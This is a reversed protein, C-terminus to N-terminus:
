REEITVEFDMDVYQGGASKRALTLKVKDGTNLKQLYTTYSQMNRTKKGNLVRIIDGNQLGAVMAPSDNEVSDIYIGKPIDMAEAQTDSISAGHIGLYRIPESNSLLEILPRIQSIALARIINTEGEEQKVIFGIVKGSTDLLVGSGEPSGQMDTALLNYEADAASLRGSVSTVMGYVVADHDGAPSGIAIVPKAQLLSYSNGLEAVSIAKKTSASIRTVPVRVVALGTYGDAKCLSGAATSGDSFTVQVGNAEALGDGYTLIYLHSGSDLFIIGEARGCSLFSNDLLDADDTIGSVVVLARRPEKSVELVESYTEEYEELSTLKTDAAYEQPASSQVAEDRSTTVQGTKNQTTGTQSSTGEDTGAPTIAQTPYVTQVMEAPPTLLKVDEQKPDTGFQRGLEPVTRVFVAAACVGFLVGGGIIAAIKVALAKKDIPKKKITEKIFHYNESDPIRDKDDGM